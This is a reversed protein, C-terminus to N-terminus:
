NNKSLQLIIIFVFLLGVLVSLISFGIAVPLARYVDEMNIGSEVNFGMVILSFIFFNLSNQSLLSYFNDRFYNSLKKIFQFVIWKILYKKVNKLQRM